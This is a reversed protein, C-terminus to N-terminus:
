LWKTLTSELDASFRYDDYDAEDTSLLLRMGQFVLPKVAGCILSHTKYDKPTMAFHSLLLTM